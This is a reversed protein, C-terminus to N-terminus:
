QQMLHPKQRDEVIQITHQAVALIYRANNVAFASHHLSLLLPQIGLGSVGEGILLM